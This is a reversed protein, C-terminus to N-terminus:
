RFVTTESNRNQSTSKQVTKYQLVYAVTQKLMERQLDSQIFAYIFLSLDIAKQM